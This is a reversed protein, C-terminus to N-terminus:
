IVDAWALAFGVLVVSIIWAVLSPIGSSRAAVKVLLGGLVIVSGKTNKPLKKFKELNM